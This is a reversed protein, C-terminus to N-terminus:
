RATCAHLDRLVPCRRIVRSVTVLRAVESHLDDGATPWINERVPERAPPMGRLCADAADMVVAAEVIAAQLEASLGATRAAASAKAAVDPRWYPRLALEADRIEVVRRLLRWRIGLRSSQGAPLEVHPVAQMLVAWLPRLRWYALLLGCQSTIRTIVPGAAIGAIGCIVVGGPLVAVVTMAPGAAQVGCAHAIILASRAMIVVLGAGASASVARMGARAYRERVSRARRRALRAIRSLAPGYYAVLSLQTGIVAVGPRAAQHAGSGAAIQMGLLLLFLAAGGLVPTVVMDAFRLYCSNAASLAGAFTWTAIVGLGSSTWLAPGSAGAHLVAPRAAVVALSASLVAMSLAFTVLTLSRDRLAQFAPQVACILAGAAAASYLVTM